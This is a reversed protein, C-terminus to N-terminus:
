RGGSTITIQLALDEDELALKLSVNAKAGQTMADELTMDSQFDGCSYGLVDLTKLVVDKKMNAFVTSKSGQTNVKLNLWAATFNRFSVPM